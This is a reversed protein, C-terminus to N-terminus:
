HHKAIVEPSFVHLVAFIGMVCTRACFLLTVALGEGMQTALPAIFACCLFIMGGLTMRRGIWDVLLAASLLGPIEAM